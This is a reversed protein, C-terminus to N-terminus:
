KNTFTKIKKFDVEMAARRLAEESGYHTSQGPSDSLMHQAFPFCAAEGLKGGFISPYFEVKSTKIDELPIKWAQKMEEPLFTLSFLSGDEGGVERGYAISTNGEIWLRKDLPLMKPHELSAECVISKGSDIEKLNAIFEGECTTTIVAPYTTPSRLGSKKDYSITDSLYDIIIWSLLGTETNEAITYLESRAGWFASTHLRFISAIGWYKEDEGKFVSSKAPKFGDPLYKQVKEPSEIEYFLFFAYPEVVFGMKEAKRSAKTVIKRQLWIPLRRLKTQMYHTMGVNMPDVLKETGEAFSKVNM